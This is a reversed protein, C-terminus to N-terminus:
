PERRRFWLLRLGSPAFRMGPITHMQNVKKSPTNRDEGILNVPIDTLSSPLIGPIRKAEEPSRESVEDGAAGM